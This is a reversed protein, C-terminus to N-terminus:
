YEDEAVLGVRRLLLRGLPTIQYGSVEFGGSWKDIIPLGSKQDTKLKKSLLGFQSLHEKYSDQIAGKDYVIQELGMERSVPSIINKQKERFNEDSGFESNFYFRLWILEIDSLEGLLRLLHKSEHYEIETSAIGNAVLSAIYERREDSLSQAAQRLGDEMLDTFTEDKNQARLPEKELHVLKKDLEAVYKILRDIKQNPIVMGVLEALYPGLTPNLLSASVKTLAAMLDFANTASVAELSMKNDNDSNNHMLQEPKMM